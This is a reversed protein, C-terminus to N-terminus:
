FVQMLFSIIGLISGIVTFVFLFWFVKRQWKTIIVEDRLKNFEMESTEIERREKEQQQKFIAEFGGKEQVEKARDPIADIVFKSEATTHRGVGYKTVLDLIHKYETSKFEGFKSFYEKKMPKLKDSHVRGKEVLQKLIDDLIAVDKETIKEMIINYNCVFKLRMLTVFDYQHGL